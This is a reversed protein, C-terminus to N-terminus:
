NEIKNHQRKRATQTFTLINELPTQPSLDCGPAVIFEKRTKMTELLNCTERYIDEPAYRSFKLPSINGAIVINNPTTKIVQSLDVDDISLAVAGSLCMKDIIHGAKGCIHLICPRSLNGIIKRTSTLSFDEYASPSLQSGSPEAIVIMDAGAKILAQAYRTIVKECYELVMRVKQQNRRTDMYIDTGALNTALTFPGCVEGIKLMTYNHKILRMAELFIPMRGDKYPDPVKLKALDDAVKIPHTMIAPLQQDSFQVQCGCAEAELSMDVFLFLIDMGMKEVSYSMANVLLRPDKAAESITSGSLLIAAAGSSASIIRRGAVRILFSFPIQRAIFLLLLGLPRFKKRLGCWNLLDILKM